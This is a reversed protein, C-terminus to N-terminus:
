EGDGIRELEALMNLAWQPPPIQIDYDAVFGDPPAVSTSVSWDGVSEFVFPYLRDTEVGVIFEPEIILLEPWGARGFRM